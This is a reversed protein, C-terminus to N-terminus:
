RLSYKSKISKPQHHISLLDEGIESIKEQMELQKVWDFPIAEKGLLLGLMNGAISGTSDCDGSHNVSLLIGTMFSQKEFGILTAYLAIALAEEAVWGAGIQEITEPDAPTNPDRALSLVKQLIYTTESHGPFSSLIDLSHRIAQDVTYGSIIFAIWQALFGAPLYGSVHGHTLAAAQCGVEFAKKGFRAADLVLGVPAVRMVGGCGKSHNLPHDISGAKGSRLASLCTLGPAKQKWLDKQNLLYSNPISTSHSDYTNNQTIFWRLYSLYICPSFTEPNILGDKAVAALIGEATFLTMQTDDTFEALNQSNFEVYGQIGMPGYKRRIESISEFEIPAGLADGIAGGLLCGTFHNINKM